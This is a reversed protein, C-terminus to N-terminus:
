EVGVTSENKQQTTKIAKERKPYEIIGWLAYFGVICPALYGALMLLDKLIGDAKELNISMLDLSFRIITLYLLSLM